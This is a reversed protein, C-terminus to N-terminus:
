VSLKPIEKSVINKTNKLEDIKVQLNLKEKDLDLFEDLDL